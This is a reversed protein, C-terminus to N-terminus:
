PKEKTTDMAKAKLDNAETQKSKYKSEYRACMAAEDAKLTANVMKKADCEAQKDDLYELRNAAFGYQNWSQVSADHDAHSKMAKEVEARNMWHDSITWYVPVSAILGVLVTVIGALRGWTLRFEGGDKYGPEPWSVRKSVKTIGRKSM